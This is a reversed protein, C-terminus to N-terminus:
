YEAELATATETRTDRCPDCELDDESKPTFVQDCGPCIVVVM